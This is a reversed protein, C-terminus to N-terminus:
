ISRKWGEKGRGGGKGELIYLHLFNSLFALCERRKKERKEGRGEM